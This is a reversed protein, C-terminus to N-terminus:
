YLKGNEYIESCSYIGDYYHNLSYAVDIPCRYTANLVTGIDCFLKPHEFKLPCIHDRDVYPIQNIDGIMVVNEVGTLEFVWDGAHMMLAEDIFLRDYDLKVGNVLVSAVTRVDREIVKEKEPYLHLLRKRVDYMGEKTMTLILDGKGNEIMRFKGIIFTTKGCGPPGNVWEIKPLRVRDINIGTINVFIDVNLMIETKKTVLVYRDSTEFRKVSEDYKVYGHKSYGYMYKRNNNRVLWLMKINDYLNYNLRELEELVSVSVSLDDNLEDLLSQMNVRILNMLWSRLM